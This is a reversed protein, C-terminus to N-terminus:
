YWDEHPKMITIVPEADDGPGCVSKLYVPEPSKGNNVYLSFSVESGSGDKHIAFRLMNLIDRLRGQEDQWEVGEPVRVYDAWVASTLVVPYKFGAEKAMASVDILVGDEIAQARTYAYIVEMATSEEEREGSEDVTDALLHDAIEHWDVEGLAATLLDSYVDAQEALPSAEEFEEQIQEALKSRAASRQSGLSEHPTEGEADNEFHQAAQERWYSHSGQENDIWLGVAWTEYNSWGNYTKEEMNNDM